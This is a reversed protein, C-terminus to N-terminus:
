RRLSTMSLKEFGWKPAVHPLLSGSLSGNSVILRDRSVQVLKPQKKKPETYPEPRTLITVELEIKKLKRPRM